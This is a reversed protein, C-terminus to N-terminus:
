CVDAMKRWLGKQLNPPIRKSFTKKMIAHQLVHVFLFVKEAFITRMKNKGRAHIENALKEGLKAFSFSCCLFLLFRQYVIV